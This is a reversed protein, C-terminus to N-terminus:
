AVMQEDKLLKNDFMKVFPIYVLVDITLLILWLVPAKWDMTALYMILPTPLNDPIAVFIKGVLGASMCLYTVVSNFVGLLLWPIALYANLVIPYGFVIPESVNFAVPAISLKSVSRLHQSKAVILAAILLAMAVGSGGYNFGLMHWSSCMVNTMEQGAARAAINNTLHILFIPRMVSNVINGGHVGLLWLGNLLLAYIAAAWVTDSSSLLPKLINLVFQPFLVGTANQCIVSILYVFPEAESSHRVM